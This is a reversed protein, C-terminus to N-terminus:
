QMRLGDGPKFSEFKEAALMRATEAAQRVEWGDLEKNRRDLEAIVLESLANGFKDGRDHPLKYSSLRRRILGLLVRDVFNTLASPTPSQHSM